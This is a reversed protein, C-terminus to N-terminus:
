NQRYAGAGWQTQSVNPDTEQYVPNMLDIPNRAQEHTGGLILDVERIPCPPQTENCYQVIRWDEGCSNMVNQLMEVKKANDGITVGGMANEGAFGCRNNCYYDSAAKCTDNKPTLTRRFGEKKGGGVVMVVAVIFLIAGLVILIFHMNSTDKLFDM